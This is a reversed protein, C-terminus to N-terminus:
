QLNERIYKEVQEFNAPGKPDAALAAEAAMTAFARLSPRRNSDSSLTRAEYYIARLMPYLTRQSQGGYPCSQNALGFFLDSLRQQDTGRFPSIAYSDSAQKERADNNILRQLPAYGPAYILAIPAGNEVDYTSTKQWAPVLFHGTADTQAAAAHYCIDRSNHGTFGKPVIVSQWLFAVHAGAIPKGTEADAVQGAIRNGYLLHPVGAM